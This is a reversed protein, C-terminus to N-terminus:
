RTCTTKGCRTLREADPLAQGFRNTNGYAAGEATLSRLADIDAAGDIQAWGVYGTIAVDADVVEELQQGVPSRARLRPM